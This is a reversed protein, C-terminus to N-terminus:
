VTIIEDAEVMHVETDRSHIGRKFVQYDFVAQGSGVAVHVAWIYCGKVVKQTKFRKVQVDQGRKFEAYKVCFDTAMADAKRMEGAAFCEQRYLNARDRDMEMTEILKRDNTSEQKM